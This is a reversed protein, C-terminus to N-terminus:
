WDQIPQKLCDSTEESVLPHCARTPSSSIRSLCLITADAENNGAAFPTCSMWVSSYHLSSNTKTQLLNLSFLFTPLLQRDQLKNSRWPLFHLLLNCYYPQNQRADM